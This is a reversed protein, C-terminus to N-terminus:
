SLHVAGDAGKGVDYRQILGAAVSEAPGGAVFIGELDTTSVSAGASIGMQSLAEVLNEPLPDAWRWGTGAAAAERQVAPPARASTGRDEALAGAKAGPQGGGAQTPGEVESLLQEALKQKAKEKKKRNRAANKSSSAVEGTDAERGGDGQNEARAAETLCVAGAGTAAEKQEKTESLSAVKQYAAAAARLQEASRSSPAPLASQLGSLVGARMHVARVDEPLVGAARECLSLLAADNWWEPKPLENCRVLALYSRAAAAAWVASPEITNAGGAAALAAAYSAAAGRLDGRAELCAGVCLHAPAASSFKIAERSKREAKVLRKKEFEAKQKVSLFEGAREDLDRLLALAAAEDM